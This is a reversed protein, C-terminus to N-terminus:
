DPCVPSLRLVQILSMPNGASWPSQAATHLGGCRELDKTLMEALNRWHMKPLLAQPLAELSEHLLYATSVHM